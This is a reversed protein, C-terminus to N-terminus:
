IQAPFVDKGSIGLNGFDFNENRSVPLPNKKIPFLPTDWKSNPREFASCM